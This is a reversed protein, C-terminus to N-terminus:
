QIIYYISGSGSLPSLSVYLKISPCNPLCVSGNLSITKKLCKHLKLVKMYKADPLCEIFRIGFESFFDPLKYFIPYVSLIDISCAISKARYPLYQLFLFKPDPWLHISDSYLGVSWVSDPDTRGIRSEELIGSGRSSFSQYFLLPPMTSHPQSPFDLAMAPRASTVVSLTLLVNPCPFRM